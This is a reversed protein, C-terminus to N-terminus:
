ALSLLYFIELYYYRSNVCAVLIQFAPRYRNWIIWQCQWILSWNCRERFRIAEPRLRGLFRINGDHGPAPEVLVSVPLLVHGGTIPVLPGSMM